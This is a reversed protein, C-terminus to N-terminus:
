QSKQDPCALAVLGDNMLFIMICCSHIAQYGLQCCGQVCQQLVCVCVSCVQKVSYTQTVPYQVTLILNLFITVFIPVLIHFGCAM